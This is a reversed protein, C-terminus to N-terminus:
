ANRHGATTAKASRATRAKPRGPRRKREVAVIPDLHIAPAKSGMEVLRVEGGCVKQVAKRIAERIENDPAALCPVRVVATITITKM